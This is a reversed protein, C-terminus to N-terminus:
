LALVEVDHARGRGALIDQIRRETERHCRVMTRHPLQALIDKYDAIVARVAQIGAGDLRIAAGTQVHRHGALALARVADALLGSADQVVGGAVLTEMLNVADSCVRWDDNGPQADLELARLGQYMRTVQHLQFAAPMPDTTSAFMEDLKSYTRHPRRAMSHSHSYRHNIQCSSTGDSLLYPKKM